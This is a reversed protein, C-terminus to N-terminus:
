FPRATFERHRTHSQKVAIELCRLRCLGDIAKRHVAVTHLSSFLYPRLRPPRSYSTSVCLDGCVRFLTPLIATQTELPPLHFVRSHIVDYM